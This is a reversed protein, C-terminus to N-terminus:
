GAAGGSGRLASLRAMFWAGADIDQQGPCRVRYPQGSMSSRSAAREIFQEATEVRDRKLLYDYKRQLHARAEAAQHWQGNRQFQCRSTSLGEMLQRIERRAQETPPAALVNPAIAVLLACLAPLQRNM